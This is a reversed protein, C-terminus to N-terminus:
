DWAVCWFEFIGAKQSEIFNDFVSNPKAKRCFRVIINLCFETEIKQHLYGPDFRYGGAQL